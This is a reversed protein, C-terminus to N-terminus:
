CWAWSRWSIAFNFKIFIDKERRTFHEMKLYNEMCSGSDRIIETLLQANNTHQCEFIRSCREMWMWWIACRFTVKALQTLPRKRSFCQMLDGLEQHLNPQLMRNLKFRQLIDKWIWKTVLLISITLLKKKNCAFPADTLM